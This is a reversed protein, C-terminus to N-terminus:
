KKKFWPIVRNVKKKYNLYTEGYQDELWKEESFIMMVSMLLYYFIPLILLWLNHAFLLIGICVFMIGSYCPNRCIEYRGTVCLENKKIYYDINKKYLASPIWLYLGLIISLVGLIIFIVFAWTENVLGSDLYGFISLMFFVATLLIVIIGYLPGVGFLPLHKNNNM